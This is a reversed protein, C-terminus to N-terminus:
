PSDYANYVHHVIGDTPKYLLGTQAAVTFVVGIGRAKLSKVQKAGPLNGVFLGGLGDTAMYM